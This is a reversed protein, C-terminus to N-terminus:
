LKHSMSGFIDNKEDNLCSKHFSRLDGPLILTVFKFPNKGVVPVFVNLPLM